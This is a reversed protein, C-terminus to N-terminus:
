QHPMSYQIEGGGCLDTALPVVHQVQEDVALVEVVEVQVVVEVQLGDLGEGGLLALLGPEAVGEMEASFDEAHRFQHHVRM